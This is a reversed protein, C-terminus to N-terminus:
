LNARPHEEGEFGGFASPFEGGTFGAPGAGGDRAIEGVLEAVLAAFSRRMFERHDNWAAFNTREIPRDANTRRTEETTPPVAEAFDRFRTGWAANLPEITGYDARLQERLGRLCEEGFCYDIPNVGRTVSLEDDLVWALPAHAAHRRVSDAVRERLRARVAPDNFCNPRVPRFSALDTRAQMRDRDAALSEDRLYLDGKGAAHDVYFALGAAHAADSEDNGEVNCGDLGARKLVAFAKPGPRPGGYFWVFVPFRDWRSDAAREERAAGVAVVALSAAALAGASRGRSRM